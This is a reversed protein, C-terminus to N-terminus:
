WIPLRRLRVRHLDVVLIAGGQLEDTFDSLLKELMANVGDTTFSELRLLVVSPRALRELAIIRAYDLDFTIVTRGESEALRVVEIDALLQLGRSRLHIADHGRGNLHEATRPSVGMDLLLKM